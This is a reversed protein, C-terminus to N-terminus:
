RYLAKVSGWTPSKTPTAADCVGGAQWTVCNSNPNVPTNLDINPLGGEQVLIIENLRLQAQARGWAPLFPTSSPSRVRSV